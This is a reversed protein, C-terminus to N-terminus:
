EVGNYRYYLRIDGQQTYRVTTIFNGDIYFFFNGGCMYGDCSLYNSSSSDQTSPPLWFSFTIERETASEVFLDENLKPVWSSQEFEYIVAIGDSFYKEPNTGFWGNVVVYNPRTAYLVASKGHMFDIRPYIYGNVDIDSIISFKEGAVKGTIRILPKFQGIDVHSFTIYDAYYGSGQSKETFYDRVPIWNEGQDLSIEISEVSVPLTTNYSITVDTVKAHISDNLYFVRYGTSTINISGIFDALSLDVYNVTVFNSVVSDLYQMKVVIINGGQQLPLTFVESYGTDDAVSIESSLITTGNLSITLIAPQSSKKTFEASVSVTVESTYTIEEPSTVKFSAIGKKFDTSVTGKTTSDSNSGGCSAVFFLVLLFLYFKKM